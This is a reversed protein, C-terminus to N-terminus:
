AKDSEDTGSQSNRQQGTRLRNVTRHYDRVWRKTTQRHQSPWTALDEILQAWDIPVMQGRLHLVTRPLLRHIGTPNQRALLVLRQEAAEDALLRHEMVARALSTGLSSRQNTPRTKLDDDRARRSQACVMACVTLFAREEAEDPYTPLFRELYRLAPLAVPSDPAMSLCRRLTARPGPQEFLARRVVDGNKKTQTTLIRIM